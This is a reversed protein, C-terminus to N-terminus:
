KGMKKGLGVECKGVVPVSIRHFIRFYMYM